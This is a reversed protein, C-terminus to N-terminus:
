RGRGRRERKWQAERRERPAHVLQYGSHKFVRAVRDSRTIVCEDNAVLVRAVVRIGAPVRVYGNSDVFVEHLDGEEDIIHVEITKSTMDDGEDVRPDEADPM